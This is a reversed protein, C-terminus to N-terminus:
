MYKGLADNVVSAVIGVVEPNMLKRKEQSNFKPEPVKVSLILTLGETFDRAEPTVNKFLNEKNGYAGLTRTLGTRFGTLHAGGEVNFANNAYCLYRDADGKTYQLAAEVMVGEHLKEIIIPSHLVDDNRNVHKIFDLLGGDFKFEEEKGIRQDTLNILLGKNLFALERLRTQLTDYEFTLGKFVEPDPRFTIRTGTGKAPGIDKVSTIAKGREYEQIYTRGGRQVQAETWESLATVAKAGMGHLGVSVRYTNKDFKAGAGVVTMVVELVSKKEEAHEEVPIGRGDDAVALSGDALVRVHINKCYGALVEDLSNGVLENVLHHLGKTDTSGIYMDPRKRIHETDRFIEVSSQDYAVEGAGDGNAVPLNEVVAAAMTEDSM